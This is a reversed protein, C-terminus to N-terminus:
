DDVGETLDVGVDQARWMDLPAKEQKKEAARYRALSWHWASIPTVVSALLAGVIGVLAVIEPLWFVRTAVGVQNAVSLNGITSALVSLALIAILGSLVLIVIRNAFISVLAIVLALLALGPLSSVLDRGQVSVHVITGAPSSVLDRWRSGSAVFLLVAVAIWLISVSARGLKPM